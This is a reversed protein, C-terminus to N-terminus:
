RDPCPGHECTSATGELVLGIRGDCEVTDVLQPAIGRGDLKALAVAEARHGLLGSRYLKVVADDGWAHVDAERGAGLKAGIMELARGSRFKSGTATEPHVAQWRDAASILIDFDSHLM